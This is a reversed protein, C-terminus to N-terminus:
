EPIGQGELCEDRVKSMVEHGVSYGVRRVPLDVDDDREIGAPKEQPGHDCEPKASGKDWYAFTAFQRALAHV